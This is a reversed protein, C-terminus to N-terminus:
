PCRKKKDTPSYFFGWFTYLFFGWM